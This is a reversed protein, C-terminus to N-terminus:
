QSIKKCNGGVKNYKPEYEVLIITPKFEALKKDIENVLKKNEEYHEEFEVSNVDSTYGFHFTGFNLIPIKNVTKQNQSFSYCLALLFLNILNFKSHKM